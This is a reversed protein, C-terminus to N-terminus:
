EAAKRNELNPVIMSDWLRGIGVAQGAEILESPTAHLLQEALTPAAKHGNHGNGNGGNGSRANLVDSLSVRYAFALQALTPGVIPRGEAYHKAALAVRERYPLQHGLYGRSGTSSSAGNMSLAKM